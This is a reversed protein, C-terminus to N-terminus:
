DVAMFHSFPELVVKHTCVDGGEMCVGAPPFMEDEMDRRQEVRLSPNLVDCMIRVEGVRYVVTDSVDSITADVLDYQCVGAEIKTRDVMDSLVDVHEVVVSEGSSSEDDSLIQQNTEMQEAMSVERDTKKAM